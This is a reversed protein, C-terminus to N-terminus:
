QAPPASTVYLARDAEIRAFLDELALRLAAEIPDRDSATVWRAFSGEVEHEVLYRKISRTQERMEADLRIRYRYRQRSKMSLTTSVALTLDAPGTTISSFTGRQQAYRVLAQSLDYHPWELLAIGPMHDPGETALEGVAIQLSRPITHSAPGSPLPHVQIHHVCGAPLVALLIVPLIRRRAHAIMFM